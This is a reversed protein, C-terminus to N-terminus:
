QETYDIMSNAELLEDADLCTIIEDEFDSSYEENRSKNLLEFVMEKSKESINKSVDDDDYNESDYESDHYSHESCIVSNENKIEVFNLKVCNVDLIISDKCYIIKKFRISVNVKDYIKDRDLSYIKEPDTVVVNNITVTINKSFPLLLYPKSSLTEPLQITKKFLNKINQKSVDVGLITKSNQFLIEILNSEIKNIINYTDNNNLFELHMNKDFTVLKFEGADIVFAEGNNLLKSCYVPNDFNALKKSVCPNIVIKDFVM